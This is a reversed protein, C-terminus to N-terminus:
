FLFKDVEELVDKPLRSSVLFLKNKRLENELVTQNIFDSNIYNYNPSVICGNKILYKIM